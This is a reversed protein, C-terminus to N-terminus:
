GPNALVALEGPDIVYSSARERAKFFAGYDRDRVGWLSNTLIADYSTTESANCITWAVIEGKAPGSGQRRKTGKDCHARLVANRLTM